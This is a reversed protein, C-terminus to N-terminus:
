LWIVTRLTIVYYNPLQFGGFHPYRDVSNYLMMGWFAYNSHEGSKLVLFGM